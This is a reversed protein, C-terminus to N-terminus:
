CDPQAQLNYEVYSSELQSFYGWERTHTQPKLQEGEGAVGMGASHMERVSQGPGPLSSTANRGAATVPHHPQRKNVAVWERVGWQRLSFSVSDKLKTISDWYNM